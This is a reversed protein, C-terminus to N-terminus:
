RTLISDKYLWLKRNPRDGIVRVGLFWKLEGLDKVDFIKKLSQSEMCSNVRSRNDRHYLSIIDDFLFSFSYFSV